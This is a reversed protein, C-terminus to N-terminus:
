NWNVTVIALIFDAVQKIKIKEGFEIMLQKDISLVLLIANKHIISNSTEFLAVCVLFIEVISV